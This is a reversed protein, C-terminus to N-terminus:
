VAIPGFDRAWTDNYDAIRIRLRRSDAGSDHILTRATEAAESDRCVLLVAEHDLLAMILALYTDRAPSLRGVWDTHEDPWALLIGWQPYWEPLLRRGDHQHDTVTRTKRPTTWSLAAPPRISASVDTAQKIVKPRTTRPVTM